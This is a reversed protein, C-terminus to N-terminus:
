QIVVTDKPGNDYPVVTYYTEYTIGMANRYDMADEHNNFAQIVHNDNVRVLLVIQKLDRKYTNIIDPINSM